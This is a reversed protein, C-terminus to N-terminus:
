VESKESYRRHFEVVSEKPTRIDIGLAKRIKENSMGMNKPRKAKFNMSQSLAQRIVGNVYGFEKKVEMGFEYKSVSGTGCAHYLGSLERKICLSIIEALDSVLIPSFFIDNFMFLEKEERLSDVIWEGFSKKDQLNIGYINTRLILSHPCRSVALEGDYKSKAYVNLPNVADEETYMGKKEGDFVSDTSIYIMKINKEACIQALTETLETNVRYTKEPEAECQEVNVMAATHVLVQPKTREIRDLLAQRDCLDFVDYAVGRMDIKVLDAGTVMFDKQLSEAIGGGLLGAIGTIYVKKKM